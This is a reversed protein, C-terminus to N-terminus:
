NEENVVPLTFHFTSGKGPESEVWICGGHREVVNKCTALGIGTGPHEEKKLFTRFFKFFTRQIHSISGLEMTRCQFCLESAENEVSIKKVSIRIKSAEKIHFKIGNIILNQLVQALQTNDAIVGPLPDFSLSLM